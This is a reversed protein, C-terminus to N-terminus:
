ALIYSVIFFDWKLRAVLKRANQSIYVICVELFSRQDRYMHNLPIFMEDSEQCVLMVHRNSFTGRGVDQGSIRVNHGVCYNALSSKLYELLM